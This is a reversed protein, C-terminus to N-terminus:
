RTAKKGGGTLERVREVFEVAREPALGSLIDLGLVAWQREEPETGHREVFASVKARVVAREDDSLEIGETLYRFVLEGSKLLREISREIERGFSQTREEIVIALRPGTKGDLARREAVVADWYENIQRDFEPRAPPPLLARIRDRATGERWVPELRRVGEALLLAGELKLDAKFATDIRNLLDLNEAVFADIRGARKALMDAVPAREQETLPLGAAAAEEVPRDLRVVRGAFDHRVLSSDGGVREARDTVRPGQLPPPVGPAAPRSHGDLVPATVLGLAAVVAAIM